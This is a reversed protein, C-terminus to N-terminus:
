PFSTMREADDFRLMRDLVFISEAEALASIADILAEGDLTGKVVARAHELISQESGKVQLARHLGTAERLGLWVELAGSEGPLGFDSLRRLLFRGGRAMVTALRRGLPSLRAATISGDLASVESRLARFVATVEDDSLKQRRAVKREALALIADPALPKPRRKPARFDISERIGLKKADRAFAAALEAVLADPTGECLEIGHQVVHLLVNTGVGEYLVGSGFPYLLMRYSLQGSRLVDILELGSWEVDERARTITGAGESQLVANVQAEESADLALGESLPLRRHALSLSM